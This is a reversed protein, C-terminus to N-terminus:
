PPSLRKKLEAIERELAEIRQFAVEIGLPPTMPPTPSPMPSAGTELSRGLGPCFHDGTVYAGCYFCYYGATPHTWYASM